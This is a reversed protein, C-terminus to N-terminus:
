SCDKEFTKVFEFFIFIALTALNSSLYFTGVVEKKYSCPLLIVISNKLRTALFLLVLLRRWAAVQNPCAAAHRWIETKLGGQCAAAHNPCATADRERTKPQLEGWAAAHERAKGM